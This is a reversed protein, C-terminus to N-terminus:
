RVTLLTQPIPRNSAGHLRGELSSVAISAAGAWLLAAVALVLAVKLSWGTRMM